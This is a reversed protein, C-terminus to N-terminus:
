LEFRKMQIAQKELKDTVLDYIKQILDEPLHSMHIQTGSGNEKLKSCLDSDYIMQLIDRRSDIDLENINETVFTSKEM